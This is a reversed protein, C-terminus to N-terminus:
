LGLRRACQKETIPLLFQKTRSVCVLVGEEKAGQVVEGRSAERALEAVQGALSVREVQLSLAQISITLVVLLSPITLALEATVTGRESSLVM